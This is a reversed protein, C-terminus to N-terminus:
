DQCVVYVMWGLEKNDLSQVKCICDRPASECLTATLALLRTKKGCRMPLRERLYGIRRYLPRFLVGWFYLLHAEDVGLAFIRDWFKKVGLLKNFDRSALEEPSVMVMTFAHIAEQWINHKAKRAIDVTDSNIIIM